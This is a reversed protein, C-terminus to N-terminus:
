SAKEHEGSHERLLAFKDKIDEFVYVKMRKTKATNEVSVFNKKKQSVYVKMRKKTKSLKSKPLAFLNKFIKKQHKTKLVDFIDINSFFFKWFIHEAFKKKELCFFLSNAWLFSIQSNETNQFKEKVSITSKSM